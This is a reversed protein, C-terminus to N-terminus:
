GLARAIQITIEPLADLARQQELLFTRLTRGKVLEMVIIQRGGIEGAEHITIINPHNLASAARSERLFRELADPEQNLRDSLIKIAVERGLRTDRARFIHSMGGSGLPDLITYSGIQTPADSM